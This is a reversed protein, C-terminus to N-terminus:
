LYDLLDDGKSCLFQLSLIIEEQINVMSLFLNNISYITDSDELCDLKLDINYIINKLDEINDIIFSNEFSYNNNYKEIEKMIDDHLLIKKEINLDIKLKLDDIIRNKYLILSKIVNDNITLLKLLIQLKECDSNLKVKDLEKQLSNNLKEIKESILNINFSEPKVLISIAVPQYIIKM